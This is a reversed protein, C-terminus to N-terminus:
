KGDAPDEGASRDILWPLYPKGADLYAKKEATDPLIGLYRDPRNPEVKWAEPFPPATPGNEDRLNMGEALRASFPVTRRGDKGALQEYLAIRLEQRAEYYTPDDILNHMELPDADVDYLEEIDWIGHYQIYKLSGRQLAFTTPTMPFTWEWFYEYVFDPEGWEDIGLEGTAVPLFSKGEFHPPSELGALDLFTPALDLNRVMADNTVGEPVLGPAAVLLPVRVSGEYANRKDILGHDGILFGNDSYFVVMTDEELGHTELFGWIRGLSDDVASLAGYYDKLYDQMRRDSAYFFDIGHWSNRQSKVWMPKGDLYEPTIKVTEPLAFDTARYQERHRPAPEADSHVAKHSLYAFFPKSPDRGASLWDLLYDTLEDTIYGAQDVHTGDVNIQNVRGGSGTVPFYFGQGAFSVWRDFGDRPADTANGMHWKGFFGTEYGSAQLYKPFLVLGEESSNNNDVVRHNRTTQGTLITARSPSCLSSTVVANPFYVGRSALADIHPTELQPQLFGMGDFRLDDVLIFVINPPDQASWLPPAALAIVVSLAAVLNTRGKM